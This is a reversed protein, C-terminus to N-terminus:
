VKRLTIIITKEKTKDIIEKIITIIIIIITIIIIIIMITTIIKEIETEKYKRITTMYKKMIDKIEIKNQIEKITEKIGIDLTKKSIIDIIV